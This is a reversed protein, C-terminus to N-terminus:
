SKDEELKRLDAQLARIDSRLWRQLYADDCRALQKEKTKIKDRIEQENM